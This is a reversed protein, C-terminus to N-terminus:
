EEAEAGCRARHSALGALARLEQCSAPLRAALHCDISIAIGSPMSVVKHAEPVSHVILSANQAPGFSCFADNMHTELESLMCPAPRSPDQLHSPRTASVLCGLKSFSPPTPPVGRDCQPGISVRPCAQRERASNASYRLLARRWFLEDNKLFRGATMATTGHLLRSSAPNSGVSRLVDGGWRRRSGARAAGAKRGRAGAAHEVLCPRQRTGALLTKPRVSPLLRAPLPAAHGHCGHAAAPVAQVYAHIHAGLGGLAADVLGAGTLHHAAAGHAVGEGRVAGALGLLM